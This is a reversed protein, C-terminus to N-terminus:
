RRHTYEGNLEGNGKCKPEIEKSFTHLRILRIFSALLASKSAAKLRISILESPNMVSFSSYRTRVVTLKGILSYTHM